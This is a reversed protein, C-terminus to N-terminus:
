NENKVELEKKFYEMYKLGNKVYDPDYTKPKGTKPYKQGTNHIHFADKYKGERLYNGYDMDIWKLAWKVRDKGRLEAIDIGLSVCKYGMIQCPGWSRSMNKLAENDANKVSKYTLVEFKEIKKNKLKKLQNYIWKEFRPKVIRKGSSELMILAMVYEPPLEYEESYKLVDEKYNILAAEEGGENESIEIQNDVKQKNRSKKSIYLAALIILSAFFLIRLIKKWNLIFSKKYDDPLNNHIEM